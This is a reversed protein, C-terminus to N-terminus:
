RVERFFAEVSEQETTLVEAWQLLHAQSLGLRAVMGPDPLPVLADGGSGLGVNRALIDALHACACIGWHEASSADPRHHFAVPEIIPPPLHWREALWSGVDAHDVGFLAVEAERISCPLEAAMRAAEAYRRYFFRDLVVKGIDHLLGGLFAVESDVLRLSRAVIRAGSATAM